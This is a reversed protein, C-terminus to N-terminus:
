IFEIVSYYRDSLIKIKNKTSTELFPWVVNLMSKIHWTPNIIKVEVLNDAYKETLLKAIGTGTKVELAHKLDFGESDFIWMWKKNGLEALARDYHGLIGNSDTYLRAKSPNTYYVSIGNKEVLKRFSHSLPDTVCKQCINEM